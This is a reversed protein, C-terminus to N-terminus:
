EFRFASVVAGMVEDRFVQKGAISEPPEPPSGDVTCTSKARIPEPTGHARTWATSNRRRTTPEAAVATALGTDFRASVERTSPAMFGRM